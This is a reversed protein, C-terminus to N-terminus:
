EGFRTVTRSTGKLLSAFQLQDATLVTGDLVGTASATRDLGSAHVNVSFGSRAYHENYVDRGLPGTATWAAQVDVTTDTCGTEEGTASLDCTVAPLDAGQVNATALKQTDFTFTFGSTSGVRTIRGGTFEGQADLNAAVHEIYLESGQTEQAVSLYTAAFTTPSTMAEWDADVVYGHFTEVKITTPSGAAPAAVAPTALGLGTLAVTAAATLPGIHKM